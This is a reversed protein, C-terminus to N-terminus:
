RTKLIDYSPDKMQGPTILTETIGDGSIDVYTAGGMEINLSQGPDRGMAIADEASYGSEISKMGTDGPNSLKHMGYASLASGALGIILSAQSPGAEYPAPIPTHGPMPPHRVKNFLNNIKSTADMRVGEKKVDAERQSLILKNTIEAKAFGLERASQGALRAATRGTQTGAYENKYMSIIADQLKFDADAFISDLQEDYDNWQQVMSDFVDEQELEANLVDNKWKNNDLMVQTLYDQNAADFQRLKERNRAKAASKKQNHASVQGAAQVAFM